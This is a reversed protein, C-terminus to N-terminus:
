APLRDAIAAALAFCSLPASGEAKNNVTIFVPQGGGLASAALDALAARTPLDEEVLRDFPAYHAKAEEYAYGAHLNWRVIAAGPSLGALLAAQKAAPPMRAHVGVCLRARNVNLVDILAPTLLEPDRPEVAYLLGPAHTQLAALFDHLREILRPAERAAGRGLPSLQFVLPGAKDRLGAICPDIFERLAREANLFLPNEAEPRGREGRQHFDTIFAPAKVMFRFHAPV